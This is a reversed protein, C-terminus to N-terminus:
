KQAPTSGLIGSQWGQKRKLKWIFGDLVYHTAQPVTLLAVAMSALEAHPQFNEFLDHFFPFLRAHERWFWADWLGEEFYALLFLFGLYVPLMRVRFFRVTPIEIGFANLKRAKMKEGNKKETLWVLAFYPIGHSLINTFSFIFDNNFLTIGINWSLITGLLFLIKQLSPLKRNWANWFVRLAWACLVALAIVGVANSVRSSVGSFFDGSVFWVFDLPLHSHWYLIPYLTALYILASSLRQELPDPRKERSAYLSLFGYQQRIFHFVAIYVLVRWFAVPSISHLMAGIVWCLIPIWLLATRHEKRELPDLYTRYLTSYVHAVDVLVVLFFWFFPGIHPLEIERSNFHIGLGLAILSTVWAPAIFWTLDFSPSHIWGERTRAAM